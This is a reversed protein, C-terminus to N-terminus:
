LKTCTWHKYYPLRGKSVNLMCSYHLNKEKCFKKLNKIKHIRGEPSIVKWFKSYKESLYKKHNESHKHGSAGDGGDTLNRLIGCGNDKRGYWRILWRELALAGIETLNAEIILIRENCNPVSKHNQKEWARRGVGKGIYYPTGNPRLYAYVYFGKPINTTSYINKMSIRIRRILTSALVLEAIWM